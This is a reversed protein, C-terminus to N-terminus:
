LPLLTRSKQLHLAYFRRPAAYVDIVLQQATYEKSYSEKAKSAAM